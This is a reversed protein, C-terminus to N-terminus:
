NAQRPPDAAFLYFVFISTQKDRHSRRSYIFCSFAPKSAATLGGRISLARFRQNAQRPSHAAFLYFVFVSTYNGRHSLRSYIFVAFVRHTPAARATSPPM